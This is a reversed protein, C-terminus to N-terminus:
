LVLKALCQGAGSVLTGRDQLCECRHQAGFMLRVTTNGVLYCPKSSQQQYVQTTWTAM